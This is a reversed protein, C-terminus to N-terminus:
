NITARWVGKIEEKRILGEDPLNNNDGKTKCYWEGSDEEGVETIRHIATPPNGVQREYYIIDGPILDTHPISRDLVVFMGDDIVPDMSNTPAIAAVYCDQNYNVILNAVVFSVQEPKIRVKPSPREVTAKAKFLDALWKCM